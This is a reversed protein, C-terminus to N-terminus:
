PRQNVRLVLDFGINGVSAVAGQVVRIGTGVPISIGPLDPSYGRVLDPPATYTADNTEETFVCRWALVAGATAGGGPTLRASVDAATLLQTTDHGSFTMATTVAGEYTAATGTTGVTSTRTLLLDVGVVGVVAVAGSVIPLCSVLEVRAQSGAPVFMDFYVLDAGVAQKPVFLRYIPM